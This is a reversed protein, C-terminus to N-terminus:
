KFVPITAHSHTRTTPGVAAAASAANGRVLLDFTIKCGVLRAMKMCNRSERSSFM